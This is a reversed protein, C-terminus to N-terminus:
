LRFRTHIENPGSQYFWPQVLAKRSLGEQECCLSITVDIPQKLFLSAMAFGMMKQAAKETKYIIAHTGCMRGMEILGNTAKPLKSVHEGKLNEGVHYKSIGAFIWEDLTEPIIADDIMWEADAELVLCPFVGNAIVTEAASIHAMSIGRNKDGVQVPSIRIEGPMEKGADCIRYTMMPLVRGDSKAPPAIGLRQNTQIFKPIWRVKARGGKHKFATRAPPNAGAVHMRPHFWSPSIMLEHVAVGLLEQDGDSSPFRHKNNDYWVALKEAENRNWKVVGTCNNPLSAPLNMRARLGNKYDSNNRCLHLHKPYVDWFNTAPYSIVLDSDVWAFEDIDSYELSARFADFLVWQPNADGCKPLEVLDAQYSKAFAQIGDGCWQWVRADCGEHCTFLVRRHDIRSIPETVLPKATKPKEWQSPTPFKEHFFNRLEGTNGKDNYNLYRVSNNPASKWAGYYQKVAGYVRPWDHKSLIWSEWPFKSKMGPWDAFGEDVMSKTFWYPGHPRSYDFAPRHESLLRQHIRELQNAWGTKARSWGRCAPTVKMEEATTDRLLCFDDYVWFFGDPFAESAALLSSKLGGGPIHEVGTIWKPLNKSVIVIRHPDTFHKEISRLAIRLESNDGFKGGKPHLPIVIPIM